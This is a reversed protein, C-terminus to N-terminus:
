KRAGGSAILNLVARAKDENFPDNGLRRVTNMAQRIAERQEAEGMAFFGAVRILARAEEETDHAHVSVVQTFYFQLGADRLLKEAIGPKTFFQKSSYMVRAKPLKPLRAAQKTPLNASKSKPPM